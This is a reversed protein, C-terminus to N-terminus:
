GVGLDRMVERTLVLLAFVWVLIDYVPVDSVCICRSIVKAHYESNSKEVLSEKKISWSWGLQSNPHQILTLLCWDYIYCEESGKCRSSETQPPLNVHKKEIQHIFIYFFMLFSITQACLFFPTLKKFDAWMRLEPKQQILDPLQHGQLPSTLKLLNFRKLTEANWDFFLYWM